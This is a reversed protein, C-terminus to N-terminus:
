EYNREILFEVRDGRFYAESYEVIDESNLFTKTTIQFCPSGSSINLNGAVEEDSIVIKIQEETRNIQNGQNKISEYLSHGVMKTTLEPVLDQRVYAVEFQIEEHDAFRTRKVQHVKTGEEVNLIRSIKAPPVLLQLDNVEIKPKLGQSELQAAYQLKSSSLVQKVKGKAVFTGKGQKRYIHGEMILHNLATRVTTRSVNYINCFEAETPLNKGPRYYGNEIKEIIDKKIQSHLQDNKPM